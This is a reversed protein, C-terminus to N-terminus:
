PTPLCLAIWFEVPRFFVYAGVGAVFGIAILVFVLVFTNRM